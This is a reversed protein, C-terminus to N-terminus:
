GETRGADEAQLVADYDEMAQAAEAPQEIVKNESNGCGLITALLTMCALSALTVFMPKRM